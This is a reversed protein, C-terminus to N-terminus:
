ELYVRINKLSYVPVFPFLVPVTQTYTQHEPLHGYREHQAQELRKTSGMMILVICILGVLGAVWRFASTYFTLGLTWNGAWFIIEGLYNPCRVWRYLGINCFQKPFQAKFFTKQRDALSEITLGCAMVLLGTAQLIIISITLQIPPNVLGFLAPSFMLVYLISVGIWIFISQKTSIGSSREQVSKLEKRYSPQFERQILYLGLRLGYVALLIGHLASYWTLNHRFIVLSLISMGAISFGYGTSIFHVTQYFGRGSMLLAVGFLIIMEVPLSMIEGRLWGVLATTGM